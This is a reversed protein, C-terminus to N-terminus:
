PMAENAAQSGSADILPNDIFQGPMLRRLLLFAVPM